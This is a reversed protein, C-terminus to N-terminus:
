ALADIASKREKKKGMSEARRARAVEVAVKKRKKEQANYAARHEIGTGGRKRRRAVTIEL